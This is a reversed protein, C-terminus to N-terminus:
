QDNEEFELEEETIEGDRIRFARVTPSDYEEMGVLVYLWSPDPALTVDTVSPFGVTHPHSHFTGVIEWGSADADRIAQLHEKPDITYNTSSHLVNTTPYVKAIDVGSPGAFLGCAEEPHCRYAHEVMAARIGAALRVTM